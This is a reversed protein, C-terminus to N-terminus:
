IHILSLGQELWRSLSDGEARPSNAALFYEARAVQHLPGDAREAFMTQVRQWNGRDIADFLERYWSRDDASLVRPVNSAEARNRFYEAAASNAMATEAGAVTCTAAIVCAMLRAKAAIKV